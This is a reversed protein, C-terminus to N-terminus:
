TKWSDVITQVNLRGLQPWLASDDSVANWVSCNLLCQLVECTHLCVLLLCFEECSRTLKRPKLVNGQEVINNQNQLGSSFNLCSGYM